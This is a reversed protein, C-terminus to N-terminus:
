GRWRYGTKYGNGQFRTQKNGTLYQHTGERKRNGANSTGWGGDVQRLELDKPERYHNDWRKWGRWQRDKLSGSGQSFNSQRSTGTEPPNNAWSHNGQKKERAHVVGESSCKWPNYGSDWDKSQNVQNASHSWGWAKDSCDGWANGKMGESRQSFSCEWPNNDHSANNDWDKLEKGHNGNHNERWLKNDDGWTNSKEAENGQAFSHNSPKDGNILNKPNDTSPHWQNWCQGKDKLAVSSQMNYDCKWTTINEGSNKNWGESPVAVYDRFKKNKQEVKGEKEGENPAFFSLELDTILEPDIDPNWDINDVYKDPDPLSIESTLGNIEAWFRKKANQFAEEGASDDWNLVNGHCYM